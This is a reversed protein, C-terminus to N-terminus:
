QKKEMAKASLEIIQDLSSYNPITTKKSWNPYFLDLEAGIKVQDHQIDPLEQWQMEQILFDNVFKTVEPENVWYFYSADHIFMCPFIRTAMYPNDWVRQMFALSARNNLMCYSQGLANGASRKEEEVLRKSKRTSNSNHITPTALRLGFALTVYGDKEAQNLKDQVWDLSVKYLTRYNTEVNKAKEETWGLNTMLTRYTGQYTLAFTPAKSDQRLDPFLDQIKNIEEPTSPIHGLQEPYYAHARLCHGDYGDTYVKLKNPDKTQLASIMDELSNFDAGGLIMGQPAIFAEKILKGYKGKVPMNQLNPDSSSLRGSITGIPNFSGFLLSYGYDTRVAKRLAAIFTGLIKVAGFYEELLGIIEKKDAPLSDWNKYNALTEKDLSPAGTDTLNTVPIAMVNYVLLSVQPNSNLNIPKIPIDSLTKQKKHTSNYKELTQSQLILQTEQYYPSNKLKAECEQILKELKEANEEVKNPDIPVGCLETYVLLLYYPLFLTRYLEELGKDQVDKLLEYYKNYTCIADISNYKLLRNTEVISINEIDEELSYKGAIDRSISKLSLNPKRVSNKSLYALLLTDEVRNNFVKFGEILGKKDAVDKMYLTYILVKLDYKGGHFVFKGKFNELFPRLNKYNTFTTHMSFKKPPASPLAHVRNILTTLCFNNSGSISISAIGATWHKLSYAEIDVSVLTDTNFFSALMTSPFVDVFYSTRMLLSDSKEEIAVGTVKAILFEFAEKSLSAMDANKICDISSILPLVNINNYEFTGYSVSQYITKKSFAKWMKPCACLIYKVGAKLMSQTQGDLHSRTDAVKGKLSPMVLINCIGIGKKIPDIYHTKITDANLMEPVYIIAHIRSSPFEKDNFTLYAM